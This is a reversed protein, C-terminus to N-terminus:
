NNKIKIQFTQSNIHPKNQVPLDEAGDIFISNLRDAVNQPNIIKESDTWLVINQNSIHSKGMQKKILTWMVKTSHKQM